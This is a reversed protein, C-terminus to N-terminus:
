VKLDSFHEHTIKWGLDTEVFILTVQGNIQGIQDGMHPRFNSHFTVVAVKDFVNIKLDELDYDFGSVAAVLGREYAENGESGFRPAGDRFETFKPGYAHYSILKDADGDQISKFIGDLTERLEAQKEPFANKVIDVDKTTDQGQACSSFVFLGSVIILLAKISIKM